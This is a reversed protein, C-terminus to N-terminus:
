LSLRIKIGIIQTEYNLANNEFTKLWSQTTKQEKRSIMIKSYMRTTRHRRAMRSGYLCSRIDRISSLVSAEERYGKLFSKCESLGTSIGRKRYPSIKKM